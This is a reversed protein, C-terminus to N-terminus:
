NILIMFETDALAPTGNFAEVQIQSGGPCSQGNAPLIQAVIILATGQFGLTAVANKPTFPLGSICYLGEGERQVNASTLGKSQSVEVGGTIPVHAYALATGPAGAAGPAGAPGAAGTAGPAGAPGVVGPLGRPGRPGRPGRRTAAARASTALDTKAISGDRIDAGSLSGDRIQAGTILSAATASGVSALVIAVAAVVLSPSPRYKRSPRM